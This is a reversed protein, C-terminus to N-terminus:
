PTEAPATSKTLDAAQLRKEARTLAAVLEGGTVPEYPLSPDLLGAHICTRLAYRRAGLGWPRALRENVGPPIRCLVRLLHALTGKDLLQDPQLRWDARCARLECLYTERAAFTKAEADPKKLLLVARYGEDVTVVPVTPLYHLFAIDSLADPNQEPEFTRVPQTCGAVSFCWGAALLMCCLCSGTRGVRVMTKEPTRKPFLSARVRGQM